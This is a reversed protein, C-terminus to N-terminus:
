RTNYNVTQQITQYNVGMNTLQLDKGDLIIIENVHPPSFQIDNTRNVDDELKTIVYNGDTTVVLVSTRPITYSLANRLPSSIIKQEVVEVLETTTEPESEVLADKLLPQMQTAVQEIEDSELYIQLPETESEISRKTLKARESLLEPVEVVKRKSHDWKTVPEKKLTLSGPVSFLYDNLFIKLFRVSGTNYRKHKSATCM